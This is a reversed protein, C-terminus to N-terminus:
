LHFLGTVEARDPILQILKTSSGPQRSLAHESGAQFRPQLSITRPRNHAIVACSPTGVNTSTNRFMMLLLPATLVASAWLRRKMDDLEPSVEESTVERPELTM